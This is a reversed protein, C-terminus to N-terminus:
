EGVEVQGTYINEPNTTDLYNSPIAKILVSELGNFESEILQDQETPTIVKNDLVIGKIVQKGTLYTGGSITRDEKSVEFTTEDQRPVTSGVYDSPIPDVKVKSIADKNESPGIIQESETPTVQIEEFSGKIIKVGAKFDGLSYKQTIKLDKLEIKM